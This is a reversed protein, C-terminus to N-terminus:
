GQVPVEDESEFGMLIEIPNAEHFLDDDIWKAEMKVGDWGHLTVSCMGTADVDDIVSVSIFDAQVELPVPNGNIKVQFEPALRESRPQEAM